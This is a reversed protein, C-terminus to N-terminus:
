QYRIVVRMDNSFTRNSLPPRYSLRTKGLSLPIATGDAAIATASAVPQPTKFFFGIRSSRCGGAANAMARLFFPVNATIALKVACELRLDGLRRDIPSSGPSLILPQLGITGRTRNVTLTWDQRALEPLVVRGAMDVPLTVVQKGARLTLVLGEISTGSVTFYLTSKPAMAARGREYVAQAKRLPGAAIRYPTALGIVVIDQEPESASASSTVPPSADQAHVLTASSAILLAIVSDGTRM